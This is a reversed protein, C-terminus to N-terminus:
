SKGAEQPCHALRRVNKGIWCPRSGVGEDHPVLADMEAGALLLNACSGDRRGRRKKRVIRIMDNRALDATDYM